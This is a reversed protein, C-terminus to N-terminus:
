RRAGDGAWRRAFGGDSWGDCEPRALMHFVASADNPTEDFRVKEQFLSYQLTVAIPRPATPRVRRSSCFAQKVGELVLTYQKATTLPALPSPNSLNGAFDLSLM